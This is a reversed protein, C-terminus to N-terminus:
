PTLRFYLPTPTPYPFPPSLRRTLSAWGRESAGRQHVGLREHDTRHAKKREAEAPPPGSPDRTSQESLGTTDLCGSPSTLVPGDKM